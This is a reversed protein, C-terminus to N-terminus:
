NNLLYPMIIGMSKSELSQFVVAKDTGKFQYRCRDSDFLSKNIIELFNNNFGIEATPIASANLANQIVKECDPFKLDEDGFYFFSKRKTETEICEIGDESIEIVDYKLIEKYQNRHLMKGDLFKLQEDDYVSCIEEICNKVAIHGNSAYAYGDKFYIYNMAPRHKENSCALHMKVSKNFNIRKM